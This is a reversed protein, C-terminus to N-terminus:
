LVRIGKAKYPLLIDNDPDLETVMIDLSNIDCVKYSQRSNLKNSIVMSVVTNSAKLIAKKITTEQRNDETLGFVPDVSTIGLFCLDAHIDQLFEVAIHGITTHGKGLINGGLLVGDINDYECLKSAVPLSNTFITLKKDIPLLNVLQLNSTGGDIILVQDDEILSLAKKAIIHKTQIEQVERKVFSPIYALAMAGGHVKKLQGKEELDNLDRRITDESVLLIECLKSSVVKNHARLEDLIISQREVKLMGQFILLKQTLTLFINKFYVSKKVSQM